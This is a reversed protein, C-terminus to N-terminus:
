SHDDFDSKGREVADVSLVLGKRIEERNVVEVDEEIAAPVGKEIGRIKGVKGLDGGCDM